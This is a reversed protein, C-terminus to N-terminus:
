KAPMKYESLYTCCCLLFNIEFIYLKITPFFCTIYLGRPILQSRHYELTQYLLYDFKQLIIFIQILLLWLGLQATLDSAVSQSLFPFLQFCMSTVSLFFESVGHLAAARVACTQHSMGTVLTKSIKNKQCAEKETM